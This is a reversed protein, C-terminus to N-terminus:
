ALVSGHIVNVEKVNALSREWSLKVTSGLNIYYECKGMLKSGSIVELM